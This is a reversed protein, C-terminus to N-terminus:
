IRRAHPHEHDLVVDPHGADEVAAQFLLAV